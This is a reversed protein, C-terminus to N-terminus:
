EMDNFYKKINDFLIPKLNNVEVCANFCRSFDFDKLEEKQKVDNLNLSNSHIHGHINFYPKSVLKPEHSLIYKKDVLRSSTSVFEFGINLFRQPSYKRDHNGMILFKRGNLRSVFQKLNDPSGMGVDGLHWVIDNEGVVSNWNKILVENMENIDHFPRKEAEYKLINKHNFHTDSVIFVKSNDAM